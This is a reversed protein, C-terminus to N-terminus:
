RFHLVTQKCDSTFDKFDPVMGCFPVLSSLSMQVTAKLPFEDKYSCVSTFSFYRM